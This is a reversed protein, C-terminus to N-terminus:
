GFLLKNMRCHIRDKNSPETANVSHKSNEEFTKMAENCANDVKTLEEESMPKNLMKDATRWETVMNKIAKTTMLIGDRGDHHAYDPSFGTHEKLYSISPPDWRGVLRALLFM